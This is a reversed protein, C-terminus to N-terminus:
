RRPRRTASRARARCSASAGASYIHRAHHRDDGQGARHHRRLEPRGAHAGDRPYRLLYRKVRMMDQAPIGDTIRVVLECAPM